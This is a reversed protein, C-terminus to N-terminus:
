RSKCFRALEEAVNKPEGGYRLRWCERTVLSGITEAQRKMTEPEESPIDQEFRAAAEEPGMETLEFGGGDRELFVLWRPICQAARRVEFLSEPEFEYVGEHKWTEAPELRALEPFHAVAELRLKLPTPVGWAVLRGERHSFFTRDDALLAFGQQALALALTSKGSGSTGALLLGEGELAVCGCHLVTVGASASLTALLVPFIARRWMTRDAALAPSFRGLARRGRLDALFSNAGDFGAFVLHGLGRFFPKPWPPGAQSATDVWFRLHIDEPARPDELPVFSERAAELIQESNTELVCVAGAALYRERLPTRADKKLFDGSSM